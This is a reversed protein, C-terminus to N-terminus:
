GIGRRDTRSVRAKGSQHVFRAVCSVKCIDFHRRRQEGLFPRRRGYGTLRKNQEELAENRMEHEHYREDADVNELQNKEIEACLRERERVWADERQRMRSASFWDM